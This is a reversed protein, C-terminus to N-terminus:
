GGNGDWHTDVRAKTLFSTSTNSLHPAFLPQPIHIHRWSTHYPTTHIHHSSGRNCSSGIWVGADRDDVGRSIFIAVNSRVM